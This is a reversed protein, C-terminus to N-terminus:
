LFSVTQLLQHVAVLCGVATPVWLVPLVAMGRRSGGEGTGESPLPSLSESVLEALERPWAEGM